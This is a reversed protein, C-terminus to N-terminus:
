IIFDAMNEDQGSFEAIIFFYRQQLRHVCLCRLQPRPLSRVTTLLESCLSSNCSSVSLHHLTLSFRLFSFHIESRNCTGSGSCYRAQLPNEPIRATLWCYVWLSHATHVVSSSNGEIKQTIDSWRIQLNFHILHDVTVCRDAGASRVHLHSRCGNAHTQTLPKIVTHTIAVSILSATHVVSLSGSLHPLIIVHLFSDLVPWLFVSM